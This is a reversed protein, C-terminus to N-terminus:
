VDRKWMLWLATVAFIVAYVAAVVLTHTGDVQTGHAVNNNVFYLPAAGISDVRGSTLAVPMQNLNPGLFYATLNLWFDSGTVRYALTMIVTGINDIPFFILAVSLGFALSRGLVAAATAVLITVGM